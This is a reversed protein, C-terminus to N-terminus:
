RYCAAGTKLPMTHRTSGEHKFVSPVGVELCCRHGSMFHENMHHLGARCFYDTQGPQQNQINLASADENERKKKAPMTPLHEFRARRGMVTAM